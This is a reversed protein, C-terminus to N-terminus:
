SEAKLEGVNVALDMLNYGAVNFELGDRRRVVANWGGDLGSKEAGIRLAEHDIHVLTLGRWGMVEELQRVAASRIPQSTTM